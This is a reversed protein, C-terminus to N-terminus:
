RGKSCVANFMAKVDQWKSRKPKKPKSSCGIEFERMKFPRQKKSSFSLAANAIVSATLAHRKGEIVAGWPEENYYAAWSSLEQASM